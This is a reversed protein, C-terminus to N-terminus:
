NDYIRVQIPCHITDRQWKLYYIVVKVYVLNVEGVPVAEKSIWYFMCFSDRKWINQWKLPILYREKNSINWGTMRLSVQRMRMSTNTHWIYNSEWIYRVHFRLFHGCLFNYGFYSIKSVNHLCALQISKAHLVTLCHNRLYVLKFLNWHSKKHVKIWFLSCSLNLVISQSYHALIANSSVKWVFYINGVCVM